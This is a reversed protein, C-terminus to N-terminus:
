QMDSCVACVGARVVFVDGYILLKIKFVHVQPFNNRKSHMIFGSM